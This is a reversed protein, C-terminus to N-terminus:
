FRDQSGGADGSPLNLQNHIFAVNGGLEMSLRQTIRV